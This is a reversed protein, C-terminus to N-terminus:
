ESRLAKRRMLGILKFDYILRLEYRVDKRQCLM